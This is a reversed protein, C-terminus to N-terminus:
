DNFYNKADTKSKQSKTSKEPSTVLWYYFPVLLRGFTIKRNTTNALGMIHALVTFIYVLYVLLVLVIFLRWVM